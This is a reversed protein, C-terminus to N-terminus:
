LEVEIVDDDGEAEDLDGRLSEALSRGKAVTLGLRARASPTLGFQEAIRLAQATAQMQTRAAPHVKRDIPEGERDYVTLMFGDSEIASRAMEAMAVTQVLMVLMGRDVRDIWGLAAVEPVLQAWVAREHENLVAPPPFDLVKGLGLVPEPLPRRGPNGESLRQERSKPPRGRAM